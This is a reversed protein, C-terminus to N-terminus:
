LTNNKWDFKLKWRQGSVSTIYENKTLYDM